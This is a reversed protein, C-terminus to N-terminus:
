PQEDSPPTVKKTFVQAISKWMDPNTIVPYINYLASSSAYSMFFAAWIPWGREISIGTFIFSAIISFVFPAVYDQIFQPLSWTAETRKTNDKVKMAKFLLHAVLGLAMMIWPSDMLLAFTTM